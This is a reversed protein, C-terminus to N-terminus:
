LNSFYIGEGAVTKIGLLEFGRNKTISVFSKGKFFQFDAAGENLHPTCKSNFDPFGHLQTTKACTVVEM